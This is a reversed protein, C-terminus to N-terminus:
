LTLQNGRNTFIVDEIDWDPHNVLTERLSGFLAKQECISLSNFIRKSTRSVRLDITVVKSNPERNLRYGSIDFYPITQDALIYEVADNLANQSSVQVLEPEYTECSADPRYIVVEVPDTPLMVRRPSSQVRRAAQKLVEGVAPMSQFTTPGIDETSESLSGSQPPLDAEATM